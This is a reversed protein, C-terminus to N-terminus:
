ITYKFDLPLPLGDVTMTGKFIIVVGKINFTKILNIVAGYNLTIPIKLLTSGKLLKQTPIGYVTGVNNGDVFLNGTINDVSATVQTPNNVRVVLDLTPNFISM